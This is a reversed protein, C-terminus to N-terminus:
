RRIDAVTPIGDPVEGLKMRVLLSNPLAYAGSRHAWPLMTRGAATM